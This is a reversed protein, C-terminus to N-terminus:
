YEKGCGKGHEEDWKGSEPDETCKLAIGVLLVCETYVM